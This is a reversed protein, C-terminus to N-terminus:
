AAVRTGCGACFRSGPPLAAGCQSCFGAATLPAGCGSCFAADSEPRPGCSRCVPPAPPGSSHASRLLQLRAAVLEEPDGTGAAADAPPEAELAALAESGYRAQLMRYDRESLKGTERDFEIEKLALLAVGRRTEEPAEPELASLDPRAPRLAPEFLLWIALLCLALAALVEFAM